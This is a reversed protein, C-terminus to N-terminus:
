AFGSRYFVGILVPRDAPLIARDARVVLVVLEPFALRCFEEAGEPFRGPWVHLLDVAEAGAALDVKFVM